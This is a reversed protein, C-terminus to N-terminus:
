GARARELSKELARQLQSPRTPKRRKPPRTKPKKGKAKQEIFYMLRQQHENRYRSPDFDSALERILGVATGLEKKTVEPHKLELSDVPVLEHAYRLTTLLLLDDLPTLLGVYSRRRMTWRCIGARGAEALARVLLAHDNPAGDPGLYYPRDYFRPDIETPDVFHMVEIRRDGQPQAEGIAERDLIVYQGKAVEYGRVREDREVPEHEESCYMRQELRVKDKRHLLRFSVRENRAATYLKVPVRTDDIEVIAKFIPRGAM